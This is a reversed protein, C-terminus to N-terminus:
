CHKTGNGNEKRVQKLSTVKEYFEGLIFLGKIRNPLHTLKIFILILLDSSYERRFYHITTLIKTPIECRQAYFIAGQLHTLKIFILPFILPLWNQSNGRWFHYGITLIVGEFTTVLKSFKSKFKVVCPM